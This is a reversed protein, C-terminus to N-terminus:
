NGSAQQLWLSRFLRGLLKQNDVSRQIPTLNYETIDITQFLPNLRGTCVTPTPISTSQEIPPYLHM